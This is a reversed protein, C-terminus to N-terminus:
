PLTSDADRPTKTDISLMDTNTVNLVSHLLVTKTLPNATMYNM